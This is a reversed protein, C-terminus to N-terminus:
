IDKICVVYKFIYNTLLKNPFSTHTHTHTHTHTEPISM